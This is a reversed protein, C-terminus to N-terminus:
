FRGSEFGILIQTTTGTFGMLRAEAFPVFGRLPVRIGGQVLWGWDTESFPGVELYGLAVGGGVYPTIVARVPTWQPGLTAFMQTGPEEIVSSFAALIRIGGPIGYGLQAGLLKLTHEDSLDAGGHIGLSWRAMSRQAELTGATFGLLTLLIVLHRLRM